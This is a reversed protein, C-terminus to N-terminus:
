LPSAIYAEDLPAKSANELSVARSHPGIPIRDFTTPGPKIALAILEVVVVAFATTYTSLLTWTAVDLHNWLLDLLM